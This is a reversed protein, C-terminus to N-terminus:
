QGSRNWHKAGAVFNIWNATHTDAHGDVYLMNALGKKHREGALQHSEIARPAFLSDWGNNGDSDTVAFM